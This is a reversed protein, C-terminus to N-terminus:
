KKKAMAILTVAIGAGLVCLIIIGQMSEDKLEKTNESYIYANIKYEKITTGNKATVIIKILNDGAVLNDNGEIEVKAEENEAEAIIELNQIKENIILNYNYINNKFSPYINFGKVTISKLNANTMEIDDTKTVNITYTRRAGNPAVVTIEIKNEGEQLDENGSIYVNSTQVEPTAKVEISTVSLDVILYYDTIEKNFDPSIGEINLELSKLYTNQNTEQQSVLQNTPQTVPQYYTPQQTTEGYNSPNNYTEGQNVPDTTEQPPNSPNENNNEGQNEEPNEVPPNEIPPNEGITEGIEDTAFSITFFCIICFILIIFLLRKKNKM